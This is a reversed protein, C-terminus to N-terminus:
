WCWAKEVEDDGLEIVEETAEEEDEGAPVPDGHRSAGAEAEEEGETHWTLM